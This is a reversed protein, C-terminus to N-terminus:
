VVGIMRDLHVSRFMGNKDMFTVFARGESSEALYFVNNTDWNFVKGDSTKYPVFVSEITNAITNKFIVTNGRIAKLIEGDTSEDPDFPLSYDSIDVDEIVGDELVVGKRSQSRQWRYYPDMDPKVREMVKLCASVNGLIRKMEHLYYLPSVALKGEMWEVIIRENARTATVQIADDGVMKWKSSWGLKKGEAIFKNAKNVTAQSIDNM